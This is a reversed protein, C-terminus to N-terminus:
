KVKEKENFVWEQLVPEWRFFEVEWKKARAIVSGEAPLKMVGAYEDPLSNRRESNGYYRRVWFLFGELDDIRGQSLLWGWGDMRLYERDRYDSWRAKMRRELIARREDLVEERREEFKPLTRAVEYLDSSQSQGMAEVL